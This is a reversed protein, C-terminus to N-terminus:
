KTRLASKPRPTTQARGETAQGRREENTHPATRGKVNSLRHRMKHLCKEALDLRKNLSNQKPERSIYLKEALCLDCYKSGKTYTNSKAIIEWKINPNPALGNEWIFGSLATMHKHEAKRFSQLHNAYREKFNNTCGIYTKINGQHNISAKYVIPGTRCEGQLVCKNKNRCNCTTQKNPSSEHTKKKYDTIIKRNHSQIITKINKM